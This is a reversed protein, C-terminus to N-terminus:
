GVIVDDSQDSSLYRERWEGYSMMEATKTKGTELDRYARKDFQRSFEDDYYPGSKQYKRRILLRQYKATGDSLIPRICDILEFQDPNWKDMFTIPVAMMGMWDSPIHKVKDVNIVPEDYTVTTGQLVSQGKVVIEYM